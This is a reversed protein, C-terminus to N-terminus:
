MERALGSCFDGGHVHKFKIEKGKEREVLVWSVAEWNQKSLFRLLYKLCAVNDDGFDDKYVKCVEPLVVIKKNNDVKMVREIQKTAIDNLQRSLPVRSTLISVKGSSSLGSHLVFNIRADVCALSYKRFGESSKAPEVFISRNSSPPSLKGRIVCHELETLSFVDSGIEYCVCRMFHSVSHKSPPGLLLLAHQLLCHYINVFIVVTEEAQFDLKDVRM